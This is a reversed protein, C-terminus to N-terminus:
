YVKNTLLGIGDIEITITDGRQMPGVGAPTGTLIIDEPYLTMIQSVYAVIEYVNFIMDQTNSTQVVRGNLRARIPLNTPDLQAAPVIRPGVPCFTDFSKARTWQGDKRQLDRATVDNACTYGSIYSKAESVSVNKCTKGIVIALEAEYHVEQSMGPYVIAEGDAILTTLPKLFLVPESPLPMNLEAAHKKYNLGVCIIKTPVFLM